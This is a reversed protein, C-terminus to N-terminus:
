DHALTPAVERGGEKVPTEREGETHGKESGGRKKGNREKSNTKKKNCSRFEVLEAFNDACWLARETESERERDCVPASIRNGSFSKRRM